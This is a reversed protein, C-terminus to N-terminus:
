PSIGLREWVGRFWLFGLFIWRISYWVWPTKQQVRILGFMDIKQIKDGRQAYLLGVFFARLTGSVSLYKDEDCFFVELGILICLSQTKKRLWWYRFGGLRFENPKNVNKTSKPKLHSPRFAWSVSCKAHRLTVFFGGARNSDVFQKNKACGDTSFESFVTKVWTTWTKKYKETELSFAYLSM